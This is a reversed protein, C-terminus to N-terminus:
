LQKIIKIVHNDNYTNKLIYLRNKNTLNLISNYSDSSIYNGNYDYLDYYTNVMTSVNIPNYKVSTGNFDTQILRYYIVGNNINYYEYKYKTKTLKTGNGNVYTLINWNFLDTSYEITFYDNNIEVATIWELIHINNIIKGSFSILVIPLMGNNDKIRPDVDGDVNIVGDGSVSGTGNLDGTIKLNGDVILESGNNTDVDGDILVDGTNNITLIINNSLSAGGLVYLIGSVNLIANNNIHISDIVLIGSINVVSNNGLWLDSIKISDGVNINIIHNNDVVVDDSEIPSVNGIWTNGDLWEGNQNSIIQCYLINGIILLFFLIVYKKM